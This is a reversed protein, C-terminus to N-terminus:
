VPAASPSKRFFSVLRDLILILLVSLGFLPLLLCLMAISVIVTRSVYGAPPKRPLGSRGAPRRKWWMWIGTIPLAVLIVCAGLWIIKSIIGIVSGVHLPYAWRHWWYRPNDALDDVAMVEGTDRHIQFGTSNMAGYTGRAYDNIASVTYHDTTGSPLDITIDRDPYRSAATDYAAQLTFGPQVYPEPKKKADEDGRQPQTEETPTAFFQKSVLHFSEGWILTYFLGTVILLMCVPFLYVGALTHLDRLIVYPKGRLRPLWVGRVKEKRRPWWLYVGTLFLVLSWCTTLEVIIRGTSGIFLQRHIKLVTRFFSETGTNGTAQHRVDATVPDVYVAISRDRRRNREADKTEKPANQPEVWVIANRRNDAHFRIRSAETGPVAAKASAILDSSDRTLPVNPSSESARATVEGDAPAAIFLYDAHIADNVEAAFIYLGGTLAIIILIPTVLAGSYFHWRWMVRYLSSTPTATPKRKPAKIPEIPPASSASEPLTDLSM